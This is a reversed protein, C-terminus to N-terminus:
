DEDLEIMSCASQMEVSDDLEVVEPAGTSDSLEVVDSGTPKELREAGKRKPIVSFFAEEWDQSESFRLLIEFVQNITLVKRTRMKVFEDIPLRAHSYGKDVAISHCLGKESNHDLLGGIVYAKDPQLSELVNESEASLYVIEEKRWIESISDELVFVDWQPSGSIKGLASKSKERLNVIYYQLPNNARRNASYCFTLQSVTKRICDDSMIKDYAMDVAVRIKCKSDSMLHIPPKKFCIDAGAERLAARKEKRRIREMKRKIPKTELWREQKKKKKLQSKSLAPGEPLPGNEQQHAQNQESVQPEHPVNNQTRCESISQKNQAIHENDDAFVINALLNAM